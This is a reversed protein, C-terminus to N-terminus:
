EKKNADLVYIWPYSPGRDTCAGLESAQIRRIHLIIPLGDVQLDKPLNNAIFVYETFLTGAIENAKQINSTFQIAYLGCDENRGLVKAEFQNEPTSSDKKCSTLIFGQFIIMILIFPKM